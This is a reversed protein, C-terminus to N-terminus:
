PYKWGWGFGRVDGVRALEQMEQQYRLNEIERQVDRQRMMEVRDLPDFECGDCGDVDEMEIDGDRDGFSDKHFENGNRGLSHAAFASIGATGYINTPAYLNDADDQYKAAAAQPPALGFGQYPFTPNVPPPQPPM